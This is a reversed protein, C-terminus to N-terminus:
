FHYAEQPPHPRLLMKLNPKGETPLLVKSLRNVPASLSTALYANNSPSAPPRLFANKVPRPKNTTRCM